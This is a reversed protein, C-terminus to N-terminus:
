SGVYVILFAVPGVLRELLLGVMVFGALECVLQIFGAHIFISTALRWWEGNTTRLGSNGGWAILTEPSALPGDVFVMRFFIVVNLLVIAPTLVTWRTRARMADHFPGSQVHAHRAVDTVTHLVPAVRRVIRGREEPSMVYVVFGGIVVLVFIFM